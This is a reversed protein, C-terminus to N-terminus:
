HIWELNISRILVKEVLRRLTAVSKLWWGVGFERMESWLPTGRRYSPVVNLLDDASDSHFAWIFSAPALCAKNAQRLRAPASNQLAIIITNISPPTIM